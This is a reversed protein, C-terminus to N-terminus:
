EVARCREALALVDSSRAGTTVPSRRHIARVTERVPPSHRVIGPAEQEAGLLLDIAAEDEAIYSLARAVDIRHSVTREVPLHNSQVKPGHEVVFPVDGLDLATSVRHLVVNTPGFGTQWFNGDEGLEEAAVSAQTLLDRATSRDQQRAAAVAMRLYLM